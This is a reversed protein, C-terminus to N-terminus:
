EGGGGCDKKTPLFGLGFLTLLHGGAQVGSSTILLVNVYLTRRIKSGFPMSKVISTIILKVFVSCMSIPLFGYLMMEFQFFSMRQSYM